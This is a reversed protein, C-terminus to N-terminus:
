VDSVRLTVTAELEEFANQTSLPVIVQYDQYLAHAPISGGGVRVQAIKGPRVVAGDEYTIEETNTRPTGFTLGTPSSRASGFGAITLGGLMSTCDIDFYVTETSRKSVLIFSLGGKRLRNSVPIRWSPTLASVDSNIITFDQGTVNVRAAAPSLVVDGAIVLTSLGGTVNVRAAAFDLVVSLSSITLTMVGGSVNVVAASSTLIVDSGVPAETAGIEESGIEFEGIM